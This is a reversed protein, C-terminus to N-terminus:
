ISYLNLCFLVLTSSTSLQMASENGYQQYPQLKKPPSASWDSQLNGLEAFTGVWARMMVRGRKEDGIAESNEGNEGGENSLLQDVKQGDVM